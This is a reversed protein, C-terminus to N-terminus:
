RALNEVLPIAQDMTLTTSVTLTRVPSWAGNSFTVYQVTGGDAVRYAVPNFTTGLIVRTGDMNMDSSLPFAASVGFIPTHRRRQAIAPAGAAAPAVSTDVTFHIELVQFICLNQSGFVLQAHNSADASAFVPHELVTSPVPQSCALGITAYSELNQETVSESDGPDATLELLAYMGHGQTTGEWWAVHVFSDQVSETEGGSESPEQTTTAVSTLRISPNRPNATLDQSLHEVREWTGGNWVALMIESAVPTWNRQWVVTVKGSLDDAAVQINTDNEGPISVPFPVVSRTVEVGEQQATLTLGNADPTATWLVGNRDLFYPNAAFAATAGLIVLCAILM